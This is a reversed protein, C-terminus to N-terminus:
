GGKCPGADISLIRAAFVRGDPTKVAGRARVPVDVFPKGGFDLPLEVTIQGAAPIVGRKDGIRYPIARDTGSAQQAAVLPVHGCQRAAADLGRAYFRVTGTQGEILAGDPETDNVVFRLHAPDDRMWLDAAAYSPREVAHGALGYQQFDRPVIVYRPLPPQGRVDGTRIDAILDGGYDGPPLQVGTVGPTYQGRISNNWFQLERWVPDFHGTNGIGTAVIATQGRGKMARDVWARDANSPGFRAGALDVFKGIAYQSQALQLGVLAVLVVTATTAARPRRTFAYAVVATVGLAVVFAATRLSIWEGPIYGNLRLLGVRAYFSEAPGVFFGYPGTDAVWDHGRLLLAGALGGAAIWGPALDRRDLAYVAAVILPPAFYIAYREEFGAPGSGYLLLVTFLAAVLAFAHREPSRPRVLEAVL